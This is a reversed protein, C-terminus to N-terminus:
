LNLSERAIKCRDTVHYRLWQLIIPHMEISRLFYSRIAGSKLFMCQAIAAIEVPAIGPRDFLESYSCIASKHVICLFHYTKQAAIRLSKYRNTAIGFLESIAGSYSSGTFSVKCM